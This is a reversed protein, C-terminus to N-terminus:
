SMWSRADPEAHVPTVPPRMVPKTCAIKLGTLCNYRTGDMLHDGQKVVKGKMDRRYKRKEDFWNVCSGFVKLRGSVLRSWVEYIGTEVANDAETLHLGLRRYMVLLKEGDTPNRNRASPDIAGRIWTGRAKISDAHILPLSDAAYHESYLYVVDSERDWASFIAATRSIGVDFGYSRPWHPPVQFDAVRILDDDIPYIAGSGLQPVGKTRAERQYEPITAFFDEKAEPSLHPADDWTATLLFRKAKKRKEEDWFGDILETLGQLPTFTGYLLGGSFGSLHNTAAPMTRLTCETWIELPPEEDCWIVHIETGQFAERRQDYSKFVLRSAGGTSHKVYLTDITEAVGQRITRHQICDAPILGTGPTGWPGYLKEQIIGRVTHATDGCAWAKIPHDFRRGKWWPPYQGTLHCVTEYGGVGETKGIRNAALIMRERYKRGAAFFELHKVYL